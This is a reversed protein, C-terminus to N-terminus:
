KAATTTSTTRECEQGSASLQLGALCACQGSIVIQGKVSCVCMTNDKNPASGTPCTDCNVTQVNLVTNGTCQCVQETQGDKGTVSTLAVPCDACSWSSVSFLLPATCICRGRELASNLPCPECANNDLATTNPCFCGGGNPAEIYGTPCSVCGQTKLNLTQGTPCVCRKNDQSAVLGTPCDACAKLSYNYVQGGTCNVNTFGAGGSRGGHIAGAQAGDANAPGKAPQNNGGILPFIGSHNGAAGANDPIPQNNDPKPFTDNRSSIPGKDATSGSPNSASGSPISGVATNPPEGNSTAPRAQGSSPAAKCYVNLVAVTSVISLVLAWKM